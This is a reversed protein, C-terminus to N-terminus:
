LEPPSVGARGLEPRPGATLDIVKRAAPRGGLVLYLEVQRRVGPHANAARLARVCEVVLQDEASMGQMSSRRSSRSTDVPNVHQMPTPRVPGGAGTAAVKRSAGASIGDQQVPEAM